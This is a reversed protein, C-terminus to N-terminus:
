WGSALRYAAKRGFAGLRCTLRGANLEWRERTRDLRPDPRHASLYRLFVVQLRQYTMTNLNRRAGPGSPFDYVSWGNLDWSDLNRGVSDLLRALLRDEERAEPGAARVYDLLGVLAYLCGNLVHRYESGPYEELFPGGDPLRGRVGGDEVAVGLPALARKAQELYRREGTRVFARCLISSAEGQAICSIWPVAMTAIPFHHEYRAGSVSAFWDAVRAFQRHNDPSAQASCSRNWHAFGYGAIRSVLYQRGLPPPFERLPIGAEDKPQFYDAERDLQYTWDLPYLWPDHPWDAESVDARGTLYFGIDRALLKFEKIPM